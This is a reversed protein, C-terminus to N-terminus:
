NVGLILAVVIALLYLASFIFLGLALLGFLQTGGHQQQRLKPNRALTNEHRNAVLFWSVLAIPVLLLVGGNTLTPIDPM